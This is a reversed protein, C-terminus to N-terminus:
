PQVSVWSRITQHFKELTLWEPTESYEGRYYMEICMQKYENSYKMLYGWYQNEKDLVATNQCFLHNKNTSESSWNVFKRQYDKGSKRRKEKRAVLASLITASNNLRTPPVVNGM